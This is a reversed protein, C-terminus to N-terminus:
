KSFALGNEELAAKLTPLSAPGMGHLKLIDREKFTALKKVNNIGNNELARRAPASLLSLFGNEPKREAECVPCTNCDSSKYYKHGNKCTRLSKKKAEKELNEKVRFRVIRTILELPLEESLPFQVTGKAGRYKSLDDKFYNIGSPTPYFGIHHQYAAYHVLNGKLVFTPIGYNIIEEAGPAAGRITTRVQELKRQTLEPFGSIYSDVDSATQKM